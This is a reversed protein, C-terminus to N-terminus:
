RGMTEELIPGPDSHTARGTSDSSDQEPCPFGRCLQPRAEPAPFLRAECPSGRTPGGCPASSRCTNRSFMFISKRRLRLRLPTGEWSLVLASGGCYMISRYLLYVESLDEM